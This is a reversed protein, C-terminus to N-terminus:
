FYFENFYPKDLPKLLIIFCGKHYLVQCSLAQVKSFLALSHEFKCMSYLSEAKIILGDPNNPEKASLVILNSLNQLLQRGQNPCESCM